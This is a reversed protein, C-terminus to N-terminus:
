GAPREEEIVRVIGRRELEDAALGKEVGAHGLFNDGAVDWNRVRDEARSM